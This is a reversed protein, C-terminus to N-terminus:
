YAEKIYQQLVRETNFFSANLSITERMIEQWKQPQNYYILMIDTALTKYLSAADKKNVIEPKEGNIKHGIAWGTKHKVYGELWWGDLTSFQPVGNHAAKMGSTGSAEKPPLPTNLWLDVGAVLLKAVDMEYDELFVIKIQEQYKNKIEGIFKILDKGKQDHPHAKGAYIIQILGKEKQIDILKKMDTFLLEPRKYATFRRAFGITFINQDLIIGQEKKIYDFLRKKAKQHTTWLKDLPIKVAQRLLTSSTRWNPLYEDYLEQFEPSTWTKSHVGNTISQIQYDSFMAQSVKKHSLAVGNVYGSFYLGTKTMNLKDKDVLKPLKKPFDKQYKLVKELSFIDYANKVPTHTTFVCKERVDKIKETVTKKRSSLFLKVAAFSGHGENLHFKKINKYGLVQLAKVGGRGLIIEQKLRYDMDGGYLQGTLLQYEPKNNPLDTDLLFIPTEGDAQEKIVYKWIAIEVKDSGIYVHTKTSLKKLKSFNYEDDPIEAQEGLSNIKQRFYGQNNLLTIGVLPFNLDAASRLFDGALVGLGGAYNKIDTELAIEMSFYAIIAKDKEM